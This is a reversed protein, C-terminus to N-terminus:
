RSVYPNRSQSLTRVTSRKGGSSYERFFDLNGKPNRHARPRRFNPVHRYCEM